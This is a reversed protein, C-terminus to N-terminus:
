TPKAKERRARERRIPLGRADRYALTTLMMVILLGAYFIATLLGHVALETWIWPTPLLLARIAMFLAAAVVIHFTLLAWLKLTGLAGIRRTMDWAGRLGSGRGKDEDGELSHNLAWAPLSFATRVYLASIVLLAVGGVALFPLRAAPVEWAILLSRVALAFLVLWVFMMAIFLFVAPFRFFAKRRIEREQAEGKPGPVSPGSGALWCAFYALWIGGLALWAILSAESDVFPYWDEDQWLHRAGAEAGWFIATWILLLTGWRRWRRFLRVYANRTVSTIDPPRIDTARQPLPPPKATTTTASKARTTESAVRADAPALTTDTGATTDTGNGM